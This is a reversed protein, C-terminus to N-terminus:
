NKLSEKILEDYKSVALMLFKIAEMNTDILNEIALFENVIRNLIPQPINQFSAMNDFILEHYHKFTIKKFHKVFNEKENLLEESNFEKKITFDKQCYLFINQTKQFLPNIIKAIHELSDNDFIFFVFENEKIICPSMNQSIVTKYKLFCLFNHMHFNDVIFVGDISYFDFVNTNLVLNKLDEENKCELINQPSLIKIFKTRIYLEKLFNLYKRYDDCCFYIINNQIEKTDLSPNLIINIQSFKKTLNYFLTEDFSIFVPKKENVIRKDTKFNSDIHFVSTEENENLPPEEQFLNLKKFLEKENGAFGCNNCSFINTRSILTLKGKSCLPCKIIKTYNKGKKIGYPQLLAESKIM